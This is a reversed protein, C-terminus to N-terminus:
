RQKTEPVLRFKRHNNQIRCPLVTIYRESTLSVDVRLSTHDTLSNGPQIPQNIPWLQERSMWRPVHRIHWSPWSHCTIVCSKEACTDASFATARNRCRVMTHDIVRDTQV